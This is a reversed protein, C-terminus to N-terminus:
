WLFFILEARRHINSFHHVLLRCGRSESWWNRRVSTKLHRAPAIFEVGIKEVPAIVVINSNARSSRDVDYIWVILSREKDFFLSM